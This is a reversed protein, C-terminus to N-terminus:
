SFLTLLLLSALGIGAVIMPKTWSGHKAPRDAYFPREFALYSVTAVVVASTIEYLFIQAQLYGGGLGWGNFWGHDRMLWLPVGHWLFLSYSIAGLFLVPRNECLSRAIADRTCISLIICGCALALLPRFAYTEWRGPAIAVSDFHNAGLLLLLGIIAVGLPFLVPRVRHVLDPRRIWIAAAAVGGGFEQLRAPIEHILGRYEPPLTELVWYEFCLSALVALVFYVTASFNKILPLALLPLLVYFDFEVPLSWWVPFIPLQSLVFFNQVMLLSAAAQILSPIAYVGLLSLAVIVLMQVYFAPAVRLVRRRFYELLGRRTTVYGPRTLAHHGLLFGSLVFFVDVGMWGASLFHALKIQANGIGVALPAGTVGWCHYLM